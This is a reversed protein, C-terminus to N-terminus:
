ANLCVTCIFTIPKKLDGEILHHEIKIKQDFNKPDIGSCFFITDNKADFLLSIFCPEM